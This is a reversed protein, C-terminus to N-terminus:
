LNIRNEGRKRYNIINEFSIMYDSHNLFRPVKLINAKIKERQNKTSKNYFIFIAHVFTKQNKYPVNEMSNIYEAFNEADENFDFETGKKIDNPKASFGFCISISATFSFNHKEHYKILKRYCDVNRESYSRAFDILQWQEQNSNLAMTKSIVDGNIVEYPIPHGLEKYALFRHQGDIINGDGDILIPRGPIIGWEKVSSKIKEVNKPKITRNTNLFKFKSYDRTEM